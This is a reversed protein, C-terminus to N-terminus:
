GPSLEQNASNKIRAVSVCVLHAEPTLSPERLLAHFAADPTKGQAQYTHGDRLDRLTLLYNAAMTISWRTAGLGDENFLGYTDQAYTGNWVDRLFGLWRMM